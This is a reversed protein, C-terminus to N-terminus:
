LNEKNEDEYIDKFIIASIDIIKMDNMSYDIMYNEFHYDKYEKMFMECEAYYIGNCEIIKDTIYGIPLLTSDTLNKMDFGTNDCIPTGVLMKKIKRKKNKIPCNPNYIDFVKRFYLVGACGKKILQYLYIM